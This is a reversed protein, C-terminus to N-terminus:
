DIIDIAGKGIKPSAARQWIVSQTFGINPTYRDPSPNGNKQNIIFKSCKGFKAVPENPFKSEITKKLSISWDKSYQGPGPMERSM